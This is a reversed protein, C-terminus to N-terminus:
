RRRPLRRHRLRTATTTTGPGTTAAPPARTPTGAFDQVDRLSAGADLAATISTYRMSHQSLKQTFGARRALRRVIRAADHRDLGTTATNDLLVPGDTRGVLYRDLVAVTAPTLTATWRRGAKRAGRLV